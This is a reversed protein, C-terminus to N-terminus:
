KLICCLGWSKAIEKETLIQNKDEDILENYELEEEFNNLHFELTEQMDMLNNLIDM